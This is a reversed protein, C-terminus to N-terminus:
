GFYNYMREKYEKTASLYFELRGDKLWQEAEPRAKVTDGDLWFKSANCPFDDIRQQVTCRVFIVDIDMEGRKTLRAVKEIDGTTDTASYSGGYNKGHWFVEYGLRRALIDLEEFDSKGTFQVLIDIDKPEKLGSVTDRVYGGAIAASNPVFINFINAIVKAAEISM